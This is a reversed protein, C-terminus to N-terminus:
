SSQAFARRLSKVPLKKRFIQNSFEQVYGQNIANWRNPVFGAHIVSKVGKRYKVRQVVVLLHVVARQYIKVAVNAIQVLHNQVLQGPLLLHLLHAARLHLVALQPDILPPVALHVVLVQAVPIAARHDRM